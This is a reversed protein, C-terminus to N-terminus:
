LLGSTSSIFTFGLAYVEHHRSSRIPIYHIIKVHYVFVEWLFFPFFSFLLDIAMVSYLMHFVEVFYM